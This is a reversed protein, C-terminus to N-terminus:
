LPGTVNIPMTDAVWPQESSSSVMQISPNSDSSSISFARIGNRALSGYFAAIPLSPFVNVFTPGPQWGPISTEVLSDNTGVSYLQAQPSTSTSWPLVGGSVGPFKAGSPSSESTLLGWTLVRGQNNVSPATLHRGNHTFIHLMYTGTGQTSVSATFAGEVLVRPATDHDLHGGPRQVM